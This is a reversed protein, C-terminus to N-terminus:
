DPFRMFCRSSGSRCAAASPRRRGEGRGKGGHRRGPAAHSGAPWDEAAPLGGPGDDDQQGKEGQDGRQQQGHRWKHAQEDDKVKEALREAGLARGGILGQDSQGQHEREKEHLRDTDGNLLLGDNGQFRSPDRGHGRDLDARARELGEHEAVDALLINREEEFEGLLRARLVGSSREMRM